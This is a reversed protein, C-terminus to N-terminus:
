AEYQYVCGIDGTPETISSDCLGGTIVKLHCIVHARGGCGLVDSICLFVGGFKGSNPALFDSVTACHVHLSESAASKMPHGLTAVASGVLMSSEMALMRAWDM